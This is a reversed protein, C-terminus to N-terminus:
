SATTSAIGCAPSGLGWALAPPYRQTSRWSLAMRERHAAGCIRGECRIQLRVPHLRDMWALLVGSVVFALLIALQWLVDIKDAQNINVFTELLDQRNELQDIQDKDRVTRIILLATKSRNTCVQFV